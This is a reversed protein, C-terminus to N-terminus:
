RKGGPALIVDAVVMSLLVIAAALCAIPLIAVFYQRVTVQGQVRHTRVQGGEYVRWEMAGCEPCMHAAVDGLMANGHGWIVGCNQCRHLHRVATTQTKAM